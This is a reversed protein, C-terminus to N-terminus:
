IVFFKIIAGYLFFAGLLYLLFLSSHKGSYIEAKTYFKRPNGPDLYLTVEQLAHGSSRRKITYTNGNPATYTYYARYIDQSYSDHIDAHQILKEQQLKATVEGNNQIIQQKLHRMKRKKRQVIFITFAIFLAIYGFTVAFFTVTTQPSIYNEPM